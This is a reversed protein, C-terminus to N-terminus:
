GEHVGYEEYWRGFPASLQGCNSAVKMLAKASWHLGFPLLVIAGIASICLYSLHEFFWVVRRGANWYPWEVRVWTQGARFNRRLLWHANAREPPVTETAEAENCFVKVAGISQLYAFFEMDGGGTLNHSLAFGRGARKLLARSFLVNGTGGGEKVSTGTPFRKRDFLGSRSVWAPAEPPLRSLVPGIVFDTRFQRATDLLRQLWDEVATEDDDIFAVWDADSLALCRNRAYSIGRRPEFGYVIPFPGIGAIADIASQGSRQEDNDVVIIRVFVDSAVKQRELSRLLDLLLAPRRFTAACIDVSVTM